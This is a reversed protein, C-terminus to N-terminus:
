LHKKPKLSESSHKILENNQIELTPLGRHRPHNLLASAYIHPGITYILRRVFDKPKRSNVGFTLKGPHTTSIGVDEWPGVAIQYKPSSLFSLKM